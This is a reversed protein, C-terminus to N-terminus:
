ETLGLEKQCTRCITQEHYFGSFVWVIAQDTDIGCPCTKIEDTSTVKVMENKGGECYVDYAVRM